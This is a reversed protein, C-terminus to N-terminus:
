PTKHVTWGETAPEYFSQAEELSAWPGRCGVVVGGDSHESSIFDRSGQPVEVAYIHILETTFTTAILEVREGPALNIEEPFDDGPAEHAKYDELENLVQQTLTNMAFATTWFATELHSTRAQPQVGLRRHLQRFGSPAKLTSTQSFSLVVRGRSKLGQAEVM